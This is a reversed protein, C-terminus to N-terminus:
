VVEEGFGSFQNSSFKTPLIKPSHPNFNAFILPNAGILAWINAFHPQLTQAYFYFGGLFPGVLPRKM